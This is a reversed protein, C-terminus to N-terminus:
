VVIYNKGNINIKSIKELVFTRFGNSDEDYVILYGEADYDYLANGSPGTVSHIDRVLNQGSLKKSYLRMPQGSYILKKAESKSIENKTAFEYLHKLFTNVM